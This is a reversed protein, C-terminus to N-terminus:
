GKPKGFLWGPKAALEALPLDALEAPIERLTGEILARKHAVSNPSEDAYVVPEPGRPGRQYAFFKPM